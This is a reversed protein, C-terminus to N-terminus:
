DLGSDAERDRKRRSLSWTRAPPRFEANSIAGAMLTERSGRDGDVLLTVWSGPIERYHRRDPRYTMMRWGRDLLWRWLDDSMGAQVTMRLSDEVHVIHAGIHPKPGRAPLRRPCREGM